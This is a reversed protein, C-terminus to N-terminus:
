PLHVVALNGLVGWSELFRSTAKGYVAGGDMVAISDPTYGVALLTHERPVVPVTNGEATTWEQATGKEVGGVVWVIVPRGAALEQKLEDLTMGSREEAKVGYARLLRAVPPPYVGYGAPPVKGWVDMVNGVFGQNPDDSLPLFNQFEIEDLHTGFYAAWDVAARSECSLPLAQPKGRVQLLVSEPLVPTQTAPPIETPLPTPTFVATATATPTRTLTPTATRALPQFATPSATSGPMGTSGVPLVAAAASYGAPLFIGALTLIGATTLGALWIKWPVRPMPKQVMDEIKDPSYVFKWGPRIPYFSKKVPLFPARTTYKKLLPITM